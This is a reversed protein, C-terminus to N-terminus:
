SSPATLVSGLFALAPEDLYGRVGCQDVSGIWRWSSATLHRGRLSGHAQGAIGAAVLKVVAILSSAPVRDPASQSSRALEIPLRREPRERREHKLCVAQVITTRGYSTDNLSM